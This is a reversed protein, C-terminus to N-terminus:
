QLRKRITGDDNAAPAGQLCHSGCFHMKENM